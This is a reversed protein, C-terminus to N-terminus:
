EPIRSHLSHRMSRARRISYVNASQWGYACIYDSITQRNKGLYGMGFEANEYEYYSFANGIDRIEEEKLSIIKVQTM